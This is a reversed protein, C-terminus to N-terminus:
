KPRLWTRKTLDLWPDSFYIRMKANGSFMDQLQYCCIIEAIGENTVISFNNFLITM